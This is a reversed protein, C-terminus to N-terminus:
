LYIDNESGLVVKERGLVGRYRDREEMIETCGM